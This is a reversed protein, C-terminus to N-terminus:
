KASSIPIEEGAGRRRTWLAAACFGLLAADAPQRFRWSGWSILAVGSVFLAVMWLRAYRARTAPDRALLFMTLALLGLIPLNGFVLQAAGNGTLPYIGWMYSLKAVELRLAQGPNALVWRMVRERMLADIEAYPRKQETETLYGNDAITLWKGPGTWVRRGAVDVDFSGQPALLRPTLGGALTEGGNSTLVITRDFRQSMYVSWPSVVLFFGALAAALRTAGRRLGAEEALMILVLVPLFLLYMPRVHAALGLVAGSILAGRWALPAGAVVRSGPPLLWLAALFVPLAATESYLSSGFFVASPWVALAAGALAGAARSGTLRHVVLLLLPASLAYIATLMAQVTVLDAGLWRIASVLLPFGLTRRPSLQWDGSLLQDSLRVYELEDAELMAPGARFHSLLGFSLGTALALLYLVLFLRRVPVTELRAPWRRWGRTTIGPGHAASATMDRGGVDM